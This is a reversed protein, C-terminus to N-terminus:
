FISLVCLIVLTNNRAMENNRRDKSLYERECINGRVTWTCASHLQHCVGGLVYRTTQSSNKRGFSHKKTFEQLLFCGMRSCLFKKLKRKEPLLILVQHTKRTLSQKRRRCTCSELRKSVYESLKTVLTTALLIPRKTSRRSAELDNSLRTLM